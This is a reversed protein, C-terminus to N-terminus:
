RLWRRRIRFSYVDLRQRFSLHAAILARVDGVRREGLGFGYYPATDFYRLGQAYAHTIASRAEEDSVRKYLNGLSAAGFGITPVTVKTKGLRRTPLPVTM